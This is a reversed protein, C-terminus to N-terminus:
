AVIDVGDSWTDAGVQGVNVGLGGDSGKDTIIDLSGNGTAVNDEDWSTDWALWAHGAVVQEVGVGGNDGGQGTGTGAGGGIGNNTDNGVGDVRGDWDGALDELLLADGGVLDVTDGSKINDAGVLEDGGQAALVWNVDVDWDNTAVGADGDDWAEGLGGGLADDVVQGLVLDGSQGLADLVGTGLDDLSLYFINM